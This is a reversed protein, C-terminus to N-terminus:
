GNLNDTFYSLIKENLSDATNIDDIAIPCTTLIQEMDPLWNGCEGIYWTAFCDSCDDILCKLLDWEDIWKFNHEKGPIISWKDIPAIGDIGFWLIPHQKNKVAAYESLSNTETYNGSQHQFGLHWSSDNVFKHLSSEVYSSIIADFEGRESYNDLVESLLTAISISYNGKISGDSSKAILHIRSDGHKKQISSKTKSIFQDCAEYYSINGNPTGTPYFSELKAYFIDIQADLLYEKLQNCAEQFYPDFESADVYCALYYPDLSEIFEQFDISFEDTSSTVSYEGCLLGEDTLREIWQHLIEDSLENWAYDCWDREYAKKFAAETTFFQWGDFTEIGWIRDTQEAPLSRLGSLIECLNDEEEDFDSLTIEDLLEVLSTGEIDELCLSGEVLKCHITKWKELPVGRVECSSCPEDCMIYGYGKSNVWIPRETFGVDEWESLPDLLAFPVRCLTQLMEIRTM